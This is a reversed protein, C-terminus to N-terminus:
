GSSWSSATSDARIPHVGSAQAGVGVWAYGEREVEEKMQMFDAAGEAMATVNLWEVVVIGNFRRADIPRHVRMRVKFDAPKGVRTKWVGDLGWAGDKEYANASGSLFFETESYQSAALDAAATAAFPANHSGPVSPVTVAPNPVAVALAAAIYMMKM